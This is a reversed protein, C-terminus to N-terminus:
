YWISQLKMEAYQQEVFVSHDPQLCDLLIASEAPHYNAKHELKRTWHFRRLILLHLEFLSTIRAEQM